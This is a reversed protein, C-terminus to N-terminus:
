FRIKAQYYQPIRKELSFFIITIQSGVKLQNSKRISGVTKNIGPTCKGALKPLNIKM